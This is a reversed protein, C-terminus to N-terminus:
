YDGGRLLITGYSKWWSAMNGGTPEVCKITVGWLRTLKDYADEKVNKNKPINLIEYIYLEGPYMEKYIKLNHILQTELM